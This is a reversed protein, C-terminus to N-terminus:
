SKKWHSFDDFTNHHLESNDTPNQLFFFVVYMEKNQKKGKLSLSYLATGVLWGDSIFFPRSRTTEMVEM